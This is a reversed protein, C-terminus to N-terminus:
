STDQATNDINNQSPRSFFKVASLGFNSIETFNVINCDRAMEEDGNRKIGM